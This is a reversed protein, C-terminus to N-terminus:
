WGWIGMWYSDIMEAPEKASPGLHCTETTEKLGLCNQTDKAKMVQVSKLSGALKEYLTDKFKLKDLTKKHNQKYGKASIM